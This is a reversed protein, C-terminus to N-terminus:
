GGVDGVESLAEYIYEIKSQKGIGVEYMFM